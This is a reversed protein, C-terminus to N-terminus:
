LAAEAREILVQLEVGRRVDCPHPEGTRAVRAFESRLTALGAPGRDKRLDVELVGGGGYLEVGARSDAIAVRCSLSVGSLAGGEHTLVLEVWDRSSRTGDVRAVPGLAAEVLDLVHPGVDLLAGHRRRWPSTSFPGGLFAGSVWWARGGDAGFAGAGELFARVGEGFRYTLVMLSGVGAEGVADAVRRADAATAALPKELLLPKGAQAARVALGPQVDPPVACAVAHSGDLLEDFTAFAPVGHAAALAAAADPRRAWVGALRTEPGAALLPAHVMTAWPGAGALGVALPDQPAGAM